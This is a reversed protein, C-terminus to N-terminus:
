IEKYAKQLIFPAKNVMYRTMRRLKNVLIVFFNIWSKSKSIKSENKCEFGQDRQFKNQYLLSSSM